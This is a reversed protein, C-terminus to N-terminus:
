RKGNKLEEMLDELHRTHIDSSSAVGKWFASGVSSRTTLVDLLVFLIPWLYKMPLGNAIAVGTLILCLVKPVSYSISLLTCKNVHEKCSEEIKEIDEKFMAEKSIM